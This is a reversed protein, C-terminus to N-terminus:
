SASFRTFEFAGKYAKQSLTVITFLALFSTPQWQSSRATINSNKINGRRSKNLIDSACLVLPMVMVLVVVVAVMEVM